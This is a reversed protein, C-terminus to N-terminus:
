GGGVEPFLSVTDGDKLVDEMKSYQGNILPISVEDTTLDVMRVIDGLTSGEEVDFPRKNFRGKRFTAFLRVEINM